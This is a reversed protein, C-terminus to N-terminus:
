VDITFIHFEKFLVSINPTKEFFEYAVKIKPIAAPSLNFGKNKLETTFYICHIQNLINTSQNYMQNPCM